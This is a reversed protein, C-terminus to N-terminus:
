APGAPEKLMAVFDENRHHTRGRDSVGAFSASIVIEMHDRGQKARQVGCSSCFGDAEVMDPGAGCHACTEAAQMPPKTLQHGCEECFLDAQPLAADCAPCNM